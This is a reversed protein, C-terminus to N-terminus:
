FNIRYFVQLSSESRSTGTGQHYASNLYERGPRQSHIRLYEIGTQQKHNLQYLWTLAIASGDESNNDGPMDDRDITEFSDYRLSLRHKGLAKSLLLYWSSFDVDVGYGYVGFKTYGKM